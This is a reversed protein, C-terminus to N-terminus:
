EEQLSNVPNQQALNLSYYGVTIWTLLLVLMLSVAFVSINLNIRYAFNNLWAIVAFYAIPTAILFSILVPKTFNQTLLYM